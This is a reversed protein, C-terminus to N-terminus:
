YNFDFSKKKSILNNDIKKEFLQSVQKAALQAQQCM